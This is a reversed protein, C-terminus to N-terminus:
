LPRVALAMALADKACAACITVREDCLRVSYAVSAKGGNRCAPRACLPLRRDSPPAWAEAAAVLEGNTYLPEPDIVGAKVLVRRLSAAPLHATEDSVMM